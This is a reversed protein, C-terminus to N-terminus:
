EILKADKMLQFISRAMVAYGRSNPHITDSKLSRDGLIDALVEREIPLNMEEAVQEYLEPPSLFVGPKPVALLLVSIRQQQALRIMAKLNNRMTDMGQKRLMDNGGHCLILLQPQVEGLVEPLRALGARMVEGPVGANIVELGTLRALVAPYSEDRKVGSGYTLSDGFALITADPSLRPLEPQSSCGALLALVSIISLYHFIRKMM